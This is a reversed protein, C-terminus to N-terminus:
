PRGTACAPLDSQIDKSKFTKLIKCMDLRTRNIGSGQSITPAGCNVKCCDSEM